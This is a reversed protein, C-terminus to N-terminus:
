CGDLGTIDGCEQVHVGSRIQITVVTHLIIVGNNGCNDNPLSSPLVPENEWSMAAACRAKSRLEQWLKKM